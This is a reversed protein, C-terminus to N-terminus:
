KNDGEKKEPPITHKGGAVALTLISALVQGAFEIGKNALQDNHGHEGVFTAFVILLLFIFLLLFESFHERMVSGGTIATSSIPVVYKVAWFILVALLSFLFVTWVVTYVM